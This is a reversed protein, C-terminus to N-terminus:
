KQAISRLARELLVGCMQRRYDAGSRVDSIPSVETKVMEVARAIVAADLRRGSLYRSTKGAYLPVPGVSALSIAVSRATGTSIDACVSVAAKSIGFYARPGLKQYSAAHKWKPIEFGLILEDKKLATKKPGVFLKTLPIKRKRGGLGLWVAAGESILACVGDACPSGNAANGGLTAMNRLSPSAFHPISAILAPAWRRAAPSREIESIKVASGIFISKGTEKIVLLEELSSIDLWCTCEDAGSNMINVLDTGGALYKRSSPLSPLKKWLEKLTAPKLIFEPM